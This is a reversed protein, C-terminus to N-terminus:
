ISLILNGMVILAFLEDIKSMRLVHLGYLTKQQQQQQKKGGTVLYFM